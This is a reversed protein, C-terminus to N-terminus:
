CGCVVAFAYRAVVGGGASDLVVGIRCSQRDVGGWLQQATGRPMRSANTTRRRRWRTRHQQQRHNEEKPRGRGGKGERGTKKQFGSKLEPLIVKCGGVSLILKTM